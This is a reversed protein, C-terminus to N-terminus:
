SQDGFARLAWNTGDFQFKAWGLKSAIMTYLTGAGAGGNLFALTFAGLDLRTVEIQDGAVAGTTGLTVIRNATLTAAPMKRWMGQSRQITVAADTLNAGAPSRIADIGDCLEDAASPSPSAARRLAGRARSSITM